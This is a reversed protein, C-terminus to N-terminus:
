HYLAWNDGDKDPPTKLTPGRNMALNTGIVAIESPNIPYNYSSKSPTIYVLKCGPPGVNNPVDYIYKNKM